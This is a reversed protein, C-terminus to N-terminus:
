RMVRVRSSLRLLVLMALVGGLSGRREVGSREEDERGRLEVGSKGFRREDAEAYVAHSVM